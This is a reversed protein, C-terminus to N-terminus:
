VMWWWSNLSDVLGMEDEVGVPDVLGAVGVLDVLGELGILDVVGEVVVLDLLGKLGVVDMPSVVDPSGPNVGSSHSAM